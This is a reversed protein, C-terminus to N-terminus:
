FNVTKERERGGEIYISISISFLVLIKLFSFIVNDNKFSSLMRIERFVRKCSALNQFVNPMKKLAVRKGSRPDTM